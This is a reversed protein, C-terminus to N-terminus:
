TSGRARNGLRIFGYRQTQAREHVQVAIHGRDSRLCGRDMRKRVDVGLVMQQIKGAAASTGFPANDFPIREYIRDAMGDWFIPGSAPRDEAAVTEHLRLGARCANNNVPLM